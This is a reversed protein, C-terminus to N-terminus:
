SLGKEIALRAAKASRMMEALGQEDHNAIADRYKLLAAILNDIKEVLSRDNNLFLEIWLKENIMAIRTLDRFSDGIFAATDYKDGNAAMLALSLVHTLQSTYAIIDDHEEPSLFSIRDFGMDEALSKALELHESRNESLPTIVFNQNRFLDPKANEVGTKESGAVPHTFVIDFSGDLHCSLAKVLNAKIGSIEILVSGPAFLRRNEEIFRIVTEPYLCVIFIKTKEVLSDLTFCAQEILGSSQAYDLSTRNADYAFLRHKDKLALAISGGMLGMGIIGIDM